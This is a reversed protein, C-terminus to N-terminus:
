TGSPTDDPPYVPVYHIGGDEWEVEKATVIVGTKYFKLYIEYVYGPKFEKISNATEEGNEDLAKIPLNTGSWTFEYPSRFDQLYSYEATVSLDVATTKVTAPQCVYCSDIRKDQLVMIMDDTNDKFTLGDKLAQYATVQYGWETNVGSAAKEWKIVLPVHFNGNNLTVTVKVKRVYVQGTISEHRSAYVLIKSTLHRFQLENNETNGFPKEFSGMQESRADCSLFDCHAVKQLDTETVTLKRFGQIEDETLLTRPAYGTAYVATNEPYPHGTDLWRSDVFSFSTIADNMLYTFYPTPTNTESKNNLTNFDAAHWFFLKAPLEEGVWAEEDGVAYTSGGGDVSTNVRIPVDTFSLSADTPQDCAALLPVFLLFLLYRVNRKM